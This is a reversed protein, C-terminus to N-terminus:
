SFKNNDVQIKLRKVDSPNV